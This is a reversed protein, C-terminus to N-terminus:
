SGCQRTAPLSAPPRRPVGGHPPSPASPCARPQPLPCPPTGQWPRQCCREPQHHSRRTLAARRQHTTGDSGEMQVYVQGGLRGCICTRSHWAAGASPMCVRTPHSGNINHASMCPPVPTTHRPNLSNPCMVVRTHGSDSDGGTATAEKTGSKARADKNRHGKVTGKEPKDETGHLANLLLFVRRSATRISLLTYVSTDSHTPTVGGVHGAIPSSVSSCGRFRGFLTSSSPDGAQDAGGWSCRPLPIAHHTTMQELVEVAADAGGQGGLETRTM